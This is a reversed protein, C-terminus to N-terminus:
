SIIKANDLDKKFNQLLGLVYKAHELIDKIEQDQYKDLNSIESIHSNYEEVDNMLESLDFVLQAYKESYKKQLTEEIFKLFDSQLREAKESVERVFDQDTKKGSDYKKWFEEEFDHIKKEAKTTVSWSFVLFVLWVISLIIEFIM